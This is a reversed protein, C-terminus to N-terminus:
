ANLEESDEASVPGPKAFAGDAKRRAMRQRSKVTKPSAWYVGAAEAAGEAPYGSPTDEVVWGAARMEERSLCRRAGGEYAGTRHADFDVGAAFSTCCGGWRGGRCHGAVPRYNQGCIDCKLGSM